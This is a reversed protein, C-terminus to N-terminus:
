LTTVAMPLAVAFITDLFSHKVIMIVSPSLLAHDQSQCPLCVKRDYSDLDHNLTFSKDSPSLYSLYSTATELMPTPELILLEWRVVGFAERKEVTPWSRQRLEAGKAPLARADL